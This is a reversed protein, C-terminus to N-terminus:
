KSGIAQSGPDGGTGGHVVNGAARGTAPPKMMVHRMLLICQHCDHAPLHFAPPPATYRSPPPPTSTSTSPPRHLEGRLLRRLLFPHDQLAGDRTQWTPASSRRSTPQARSSCSRCPAWGSSDPPAAAPPQNRCNPSRLQTLSSPVDIPDNSCHSRALARAQMASEGASIGMVNTMYNVLNIALRARVCCCTLVRM